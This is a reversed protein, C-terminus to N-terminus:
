SKGMLALRWDGYFGVYRAQWKYYRIGQNEDDWQVLHPAEREQIYIPKEPLNSCVLAWATSDFWGGPAQLRRVEGSYPNVARNATEGDEPNDTIQAATRRLNISHVLLDYILGTPQGRDDLLGGAAVYVTEFNDMSLALDYKNDQTTQYEAGPDVHSDNFYSLGDYAEGYTTGDGGNLMAFAVYDKHQEFRTGANRAWAELSGVRNDNIANHYIGIPIDWDQNYVIMGRENGGLVTIPGGEHLGGVVQKNTRSDVATGAAQGGNQSPWPVTGMDAYTEFAGDSQTVGCFPARLPSYGKQATLFGKRMGYELHALVDTRTIM